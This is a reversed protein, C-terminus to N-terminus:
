LHRFILQQDQTIMNSVVLNFSNDMMRRIEGEPVTGDLKVTNWHVKSMHYGPIVSPFTDRLATAEQPDCKLSVWGIDNGTDISEKDGNSMKGLTLTAFM